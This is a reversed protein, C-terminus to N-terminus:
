RGGAAMHPYARDMREVEAVILAAAEILRARRYLTDLKCADALKLRSAAGWAGRTIAGDYHEDDHQANYGKARQRDREAQIEHLVTLPEDPLPILGADTTDPEVTVLEPDTM